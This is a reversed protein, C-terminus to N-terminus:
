GVQVEYLVLHAAVNRLEMYEIEVGFDSQRICIGNIVETRGHLTEQIWSDKYLGLQKCREDTQCVVGKVISLEGFMTDFCTQCATVM